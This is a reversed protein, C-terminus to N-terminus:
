LNTELKKVLLVRLGLYIVILFIIQIYSLFFIAILSFLLLKALSSHAIGWWSGFLWLSAAVALLEMPDPTLTTNYLRFATLFTFLLWSLLASVLFILLTKGYSLLKDKM